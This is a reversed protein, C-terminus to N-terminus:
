IRCTVLCRFNWVSGVPEAVIYGCFVAKYEAAL